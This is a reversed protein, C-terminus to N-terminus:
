NFTLSYNGLYYVCYFTNCFVNFFLELLHIEVTIEICYISKFAFYRSHMCTPLYASSIKLSDYAPHGLFVPVFKLTLYLVNCPNLNTCCGRTPFTERHHYHCCLVCFLIGSKNTLRFLM